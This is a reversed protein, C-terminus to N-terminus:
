FTQSSDQSPQQNNPKSIFRNLLFLGCVAYLLETSIFLLHSADWLGRSHRVAFFLSFPARFYDTSFPWLLQMGPGGATISDLLLHILYVGLTFVFLTKYSLKPKISPTRDRRKFLLIALASFLVSLVLSAAISHTPGRHFKTQTVVEPLFDLDPLNSIIVSYLAIPSILSFIKTTRHSRDPFFRSLAYGVASHAIPSPM